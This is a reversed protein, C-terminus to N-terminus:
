LENKRKIFFYYFLCGIFGTLCLYTIWKNKDKNTLYNRHYCDRTFWVILPTQSLLFFIFCFIVVFSCIPMHISFVAILIYLFSIIAACELVWFAITEKHKEGRMSEKVVPAYNKFFTQINNLFKDKDIKKGKIVISRLIHHPSLLVKGDINIITRDNYLPRLSIIVGEVWTFYTFVRIVYSVDLIIRHNQEDFEKISLGKSFERIKDWAENISLSLTSSYIPEKIM